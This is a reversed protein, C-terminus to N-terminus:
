LLDLPKLNLGFPDNLSDEVNLESVQFYKTWFIAFMKRRKGSISKLYICATKNEELRQQKKTFM